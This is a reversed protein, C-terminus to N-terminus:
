SPVGAVAPDGGAVDTGKASRRDWLRQFFALARRKGHELTGEPHRAYQIAGLGFLIFVWGGSLGLRSQFEPILAFAIGANIAGEVTRACTSVVLVVFVLGLFYNFDTPSAIGTKAALLGGGLGAIGASLAFATIKARTPSIGVSQAAVESGRMADLNHGTTGRRVFIVLVSM